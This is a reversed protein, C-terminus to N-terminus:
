GRLRIWGVIIFGRVMMKFVLTVIIMMIMWVDDCSILLNPCTTSTGNFGVWGFWLMATGLFVTSLNHPKFEEKGFGYRKGIMLAYALGAAGSAIHVPTGGAYDLSGM